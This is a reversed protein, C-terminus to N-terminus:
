GSLTADNSLDLHRFGKPTCQGNPNWVWPLESRSCGQAILRLEKPTLVFVIVEFPFSSEM